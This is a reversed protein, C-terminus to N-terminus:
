LTNESSLAICSITITEFTNTESVVKVQKLSRTPNPSIHFLYRLIEPSVSLKWVRAKGAAGLDGHPAATQVFASCPICLESATLSVSYCHFSAFYYVGMEQLIQLAHKVAPLLIQGMQRHQSLRQGTVDTRLIQAHQLFANFEQVALPLLDTVLYVCFCRAMLHLQKVVYAQMTPAFAKLVKRSMLSISEPSWLFSMLNELVDVSWQM